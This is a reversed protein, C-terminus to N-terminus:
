MRMLYFFFGISIIIEYVRCRDMHLYQLQFLKGQELWVLGAHLRSPGGDWQSWVCAAAGTEAPTAPPPM